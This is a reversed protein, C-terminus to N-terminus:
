LIYVEIMLLLSDFTNSSFPMSAGSCVPRRGPISVENFISIKLALLMYLWLSCAM